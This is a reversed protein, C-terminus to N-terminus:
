MHSPLRWGIRKLNPAEQNLLVLLVWSRRLLERRQVTESLQFNPSGSKRLAAWVCKIQLSPSLAPYFRTKPKSLAGPLLCFFWITLTSDRCRQPNGCLKFVNLSKLAAKRVPPQSPTRGRQQPPLILHHPPLLNFPHAAHRNFWCDPAVGVWTVQEWTAHSCMHPLLHPTKM